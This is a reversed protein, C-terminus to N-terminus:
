GHSIESNRSKTTDASTSISARPATSSRKSIRISFRTNKLEGGGEPSRIRPASAPDGDALCLPRVRKHIDGLERSPNQHFITCDFIYKQLEKVRYISKYANSFEIISKDPWVYFHRTTTLVSASGTDSYIWSAMYM